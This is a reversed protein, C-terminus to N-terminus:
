KIEINISMTQTKGFDERDIESWFQKEELNNANNNLERKQRIQEEQSIGSGTSGYLQQSYKSGLYDEAKEKLKDHTDHKEDM